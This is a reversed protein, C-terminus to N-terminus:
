QLQIDTSLEAVEEMLRQQDLLEATHIQNCVQPM